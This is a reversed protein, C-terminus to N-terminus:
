NRDKCWIRRELKIKTSIKANKNTSVFDGENIANEQERSLLLFCKKLSKLYAGSGFTWINYHLILFLTLPFFM